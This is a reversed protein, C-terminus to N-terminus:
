LSIGATILQVNDFFDTARYAYDVTFATGNLDLNLGAGLNLGTYFSNDMNEQLQYGGRLFLINRLNLELGGSYQDESFSNSRFNGLVTVVSGAAIDRSYSVGFNLLSPLEYDAGEFAVARNPSAPDDFRTFRVLGTGGFARETGFNKLAVGFRLGSEGVVYTMGADFAMGGANTDDIREGVYKATIGASIRDTFQRAYSIGATVYTASWSLDSVEPSAETQLPIDGFDWASLTFAVNNNGFRQAVGAHNIGIDAVYEMRSFLVSTGQNLALGAPNAYLAEIGNLNALGSTLTTGLSASRATVPVLLHTAGATGSRDRGDFAGENIDAQASVDLVLVLALFSTLLSYVLKKAKM